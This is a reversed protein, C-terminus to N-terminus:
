KHIIQKSCTSVFNFLANQVSKHFIELNTWFIPIIHNEYSLSNTSCLIKLWSQFIVVTGKCHVYTVPGRASLYIPQLTPCLELAAVRTLSTNWISNRWCKTNHLSKVLQRSLECGTFSWNQGSVPGNLITPNGSAELRFVLSPKECLPM